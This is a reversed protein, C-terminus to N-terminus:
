NAVAIWMAILNQDILILYRTNPAIVLNDAWKITDPFRMEYTTLGTLIDLSYFHEYGDNLIREFTFDVDSDMNLTYRVDPQIADTLSSVKVRSQESYDLMGLLTDQMIQGTIEQSNNERIKSIIGNKLETYTSM